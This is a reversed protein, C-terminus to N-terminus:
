TLKALILHKLDGIGVNGSSDIRLRESSNVYFTLNDSSHHYQIIGKTENAGSGDSFNISGADSTGSVITMGNDGSTTGIVLNDAYSVANDSTSTGVLLRGSSDISLGGDTTATNEYRNAKITSM